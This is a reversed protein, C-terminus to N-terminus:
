DSFRYKILIWLARLGDRWKIKKGEKITRPNYSIPVEAIKIGKKAIKATVEPEWEFNNEKINIKKIISSRFVKYCTPEDTLKTNYLLNTLFTVFKGGIYFSFRSYKNSKKLIRSGYVVDARNEIIPKILSGYENPNYELDADQIIIIDGTSNSIGTKVAAGKGSNQIHEIVKIGKIKKLIDLSKDRSGDDVCIIEKSLPIRVRKVREIIEKITREENYVPILISLKM